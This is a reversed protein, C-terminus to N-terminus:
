RAGLRRGVRCPRGPGGCRTRVRRRGGCGGRRWRCRRPRGAGGRGSGRGGGPRRRVPLRGIVRIARQMARAAAAAPTRVSPLEPHLSPRLGSRTKAASASVALKRSISASYSFSWGSVSTMRSMWPLMRRVRRTGMRRASTTATASWRRMSFIRLGLCAVQTALNADVSITRAEAVPLLYRSSIVVSLQNSM